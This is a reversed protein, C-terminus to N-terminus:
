GTPADFGRGPRAFLYGQLLDCGLDALMDRETATEVGEAVVLIGLEECLKKMSRVITQRRLDTDVGRVLSMDLKAIEPELQTFSTLGAYGAGLDDIAIQFGLSKLQAVSAALNKVGYLSARETM